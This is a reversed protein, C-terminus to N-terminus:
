AAEAARGSLWARLLLPRGEIEFWTEAVPCGAPLATIREPVSPMGLDFVPEPGALEALLNGCLICMAEHLAEIDIERADDGCDNVSLGLMNTALQRALERPAWLECSGVLPGDFALQVGYAGVPLSDYSRAAAPVALVYAADELVRAGVRALLEREIHMAVTERHVAAASGWSEEAM